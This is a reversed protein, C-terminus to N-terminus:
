CGPPLINSTVALRVRSPDRYIVLGPIVIRSNSDAVATGSQLVQSDSVRTLTWNVTSDPAPFFNRTKNLAVDVTAQTGPYVDRPHSPSSGILFLTSAWDTTTDTLTDLEWDFYGGWTGVMDGNTRSGTGPDKQDVGLDANHFGPFSQDASYRSQYAVDDRQTQRSDAAGEQWFDTGSDIAHASDDWYLHMGWGSADAARYQDTVFAGWQMAASTDSKGNLVRILPMDREPSTNADLSWLDRTGVTGGEYNTLNTALNQARSGLVHESKGSENGEFGNRMSTVTSFKSPFSKGLALAGASGMSHGIISIKNPNVNWEGVLFDNIWLLRRQTYNILTEHNAPRAPPNSFPNYDPSWGFWWTHETKVVSQRKRLMADDHAVIVGDVPETDVRPKSGLSWGTWQGGGGHFLLTAPIPTGGPGTGAPLGGVPESVSFVHPIGNRDADAMIPFDIRGSNDDDNGDAWMAYVHATLDGAPGVAQLHAIVPDGDPNYTNSVPGTRNSGSVATQGWKVVAFYATEATHPTYVFLGENSALTTTGGLGDPITFELPGALKLREGEWDGKFLRGVLTAQNTSTFASSGKYIAYTEPNTAAETWKVWVQGNAYWGSVNSQAMVAPSLLSYTIASSLVAVAYRKIM